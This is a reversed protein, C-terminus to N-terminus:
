STWPEFVRNGFRLRPPSRAIQRVMNLPLPSSRQIARRTTELKASKIVNRLNPRSVSHVKLHYKRRLTDAYDIQKQYIKYSQGLLINYRRQLENRKAPQMQHWFLRYGLNDRLREINEFQKQFSKIRKTENESFM